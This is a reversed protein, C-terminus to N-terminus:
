GNVLSSFMSNPNSLLAKPSDWEELKGASLVVITDYNLITSVRHAITLVTKNAFATFLVDQLIADMDKDISATAEDLILIRSKRLFARAVCFLQRQGVSFNEGGETVISELGNPLNSLTNKLQAIGIAEWIDEDSCKDFPDLNFRITGTFLTPDQPVISIRQRLVALPVHDINVGDIYLAGDTRDILRFFALMLSSKGSGTRGCIGVKEGGKIRININQLVPELEKSYRMELNNVTIDGMFPWDDPPQFVGEQKEIELNAFYKLREIANMQMELEASQSVTQMLLQSSYLSLSISLGVLSIDIGGSFFTTIAATGAMGVIGAGIVGLRFQLWFNSGQRFLCTLASTNIKDMAAGAFCAQKNYARITSLGSLTESFHSYVPSMNISELRKLERTTSIYYVTVFLYLITIPIIGIIFIPANIANILLGIVTISAFQLTQALTYGITQDVMKTDTSFRNLIRGIPTTDFFRMPSQTVNKLVREHINQGAILSSLFTTASFLYVVVASTVSIIAYGTLYYESLTEVEEQTINPELGAESWNSIWYNSYTSLLFNILFVVFGLIVVKPGIAQLYYLYVRWSISGKNREEAHILKSGDGEEEDVCEEAPFLDDLDEDDEFISSARSMRSAKRFRIEKERESIQKRLAQIDKDIGQDEGAADSMDPAEAKAAVGADVWGKYLQPSDRQIEAPTGQQMISGNKLVVVYDVEPLFHTQHTVLVVSRGQEVILYNKIAEHFVQTGVHVDLASMPDDLIVVQTDSYVARAVSVRQKQGGSLNIGKEGIETKDGSPLMDIDQRLGCAAITMQYRQENYKSGFVINEKLSANILWAKQNAYAVKNKDSRWTIDGSVLKIEGLMSSVISSKGSGIEGVIATLKGTEIELNINKLVPTSPDEWTLTADTIKIVLNDPLTPTPTPPPLPKAPKLETEENFTGYKGDGEQQAAKQLRMTTDHRHEGDHCTDRAALTVMKQRGKVKDEVEPAGLFKKIRGHSIIANIAFMIASPLLMLSGSMGQFLSISPFMIDPTLPEGELTYYLGFSVVMAFSTASIALPSMSSTLAAVKYLAKIESDRSTKIRSRFREEWGNLKILKIGQLLENTGKLRDDSYGMVRQQFKRIGKAIFGQLLMTIVFMSAGVLASFGLINYLFYLTVAIQIPATWLLHFFMAFMQINAPDTSINNTLQGANMDSGQLEVPSLYQAKLYVSGQLASRIKLSVHFMTQFHRQQLVTPVINCVCLLFVLFYVNEATDAVTIYGVDKDVPIEGNISILTMQDIIKQLIIPGSLRIMDASVKQLGAVAVDGGHLKWYIKLFNADKIDVSNKKMLDNSLADQLQDVVVHSKYDTPLEGLDSLELPRQYGLSFLGNLWWVSLSSFYNSFKHRYKINSNKSDQSFNADGYLVRRVKNRLLVRNFILFVDVMLLLIYAILMSLTLDFKLITINMGPARRLDRFRLKESVIAALMYVVQLCLMKPQDWLEAQDSYYVLVVTGLVSLIAPVFLQPRSSGGIVLTDTLVGEFVQITTLLFLLLLVIMRFDHFPYRIRLLKEPTKYLTEIDANFFRKYILIIVALAIFVAHPICYIGNMLCTLQLNGVAQSGVEAPDSGCFWSPDYTQNDVDGM